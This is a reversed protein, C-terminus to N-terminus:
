RSRMRESITEFLGLTWCLPCGRMAVIALLGAALAFLPDSAQQLLAYTILSAAIAGRMLHAVITGSGFM